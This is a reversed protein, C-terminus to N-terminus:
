SAERVGANVNRPPPAAAGARRTGPQFQGVWVREATHAPFRSRTQSAPISECDTRSRVGLNVSGKRGGAVAAPDLRSPGRRIPRRLTPARGAEVGM